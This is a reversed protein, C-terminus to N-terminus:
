VKNVEQLRGTPFQLFFQKILPRAVLCPLPTIFKVARGSLFYKKHPKGVDYVCSVNNKCLKEKSVINNTRKINDIIM